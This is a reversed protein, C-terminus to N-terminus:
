SSIPGYSSAGDADGDCRTHEVREEADQEAGDERRRGHAKTGYRHDPVGQPPLYSTKYLSSYLIVM